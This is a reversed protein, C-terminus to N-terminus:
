LIRVPKWDFFDISTCYLEINDVKMYLNIKYQHNVHLHGYVIKNIGYDEMLAFYQDEAFSDEPNKFILSTPPHHIVCIALDIDASTLEKLANQLHLFERTKLSSHRETGRVGCVGVNELIFSRGSLFYFSPTNYLQQMKAYDLVWHDHNGEIFCINRAKLAQLQQLNETAELYEKTWLLDGAILLLDAPPTEAAINAALQEFYNPPYYFRQVMKELKGLHPDAIALIKM